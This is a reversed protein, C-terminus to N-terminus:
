SSKVPNVAGIFHTLVPYKDYVTTCYFPTGEDAHIYVHLSNDSAGVSFTTASNIFHLHEALDMASEKITKM